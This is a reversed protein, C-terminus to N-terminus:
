YSNKLDILILYERNGEKGLIPSDAMQTMRFSNDNLWEFFEEKIALLDKESV